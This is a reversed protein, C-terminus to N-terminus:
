LKKLSAGRGISVVNLKLGANDAYRCSSAGSLEVTLKELVNVSCKAAGSLGIRSTNVDTKLLNIDCAGACSLDFRGAKGTVKIGAAGAAEIDAAGAIINASIKSAGSIDFSVVEFTGGLNLKAAGCCDLALKKAETNLKSIVVAGSAMIEFDGDYKFGDAVCLKSAGSMRVGALQPMTIRAKAVPNWNRQSTLSKPLNEASLSLINDSVKVEVYPLAEDTVDIDVAWSDGRTVEVNFVWSIELKNFGKLDYSRIAAQASSLGMAAMSVLIAFLSIIRKM